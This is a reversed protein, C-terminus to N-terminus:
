YIETTKILCLVKEIMLLILVITLAIKNKFDIKTHLKSQFYYNDSLYISKIKFWENFKTNRKEM